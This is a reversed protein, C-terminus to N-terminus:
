RKRTTKRRSTAKTARKTAKKAVRSLAKTKAQQEPLKAAAAKGAAAFRTPDAEIAAANALTDADWEAQYDDVPTAKAKAM